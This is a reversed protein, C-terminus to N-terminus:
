MWRLLPWGSLSLITLTDLRRVRCRVSVACGFALRALVLRRANEAQQVGANIVSRM